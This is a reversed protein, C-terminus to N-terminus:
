GSETLQNLKRSRHTQVCGQISVARNALNIKIHRKLSTDAVSKYEVNRLGFSCARISHALFTKVRGGILFISTLFLFEQYVPFNTGRLRGASRFCRATANAGFWVSFLDREEEGYRENEPLYDITRSGECYHRHDSPMQGRPYSVVQM